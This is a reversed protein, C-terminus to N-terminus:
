GDWAALLNEIAVPDSEYYALIQPIQQVLPKIQQIAQQKEDPQILGFGELFDLRPRPCRWRTSSAILGSNSRIRSATSIGTESDSYSYRM